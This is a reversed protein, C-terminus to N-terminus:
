LLKCIDLVFRQEHLKEFKSLLLDTRHCQPSSAPIFLKNRRLEAVEFKLMYNVDIM